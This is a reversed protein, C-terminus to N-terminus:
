NIAAIIKHIDGQFQEMLERIVTGDVNIGMGQLFQAVEDIDPLSSQFDPYGAGGGCSGDAFGGVDTPGGARGSSPCSSPGSSGGNGCGTNNQSNYPCGSGPQRPCGQSGAFPGFGHQLGTNGLQSFLMNMWPNGPFNERTRPEAITELPHELHFGRGKCAECLDYNRCKTCKFRTGIVRGGCGDCAVGVHEKPGAPEEKKSPEEPKKAETATFTPTPGTPEQVIDTDDEVTVQDFISPEKTAAAVPPVSPRPEAAKGTVRVHLRLVARAAGETTLDLATQFESESECVVFDGDTDQWVLRFTINDGLVSRIKGVLDQFAGTAPLLYRRIEKEAEFVVKVEPM